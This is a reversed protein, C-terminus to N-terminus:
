IELKVKYDKLWINMQLFYAILQPGTMLQGYWPTTFSAGKSDVISRLYNEDIIALIPSSKDNLVENMANCVM